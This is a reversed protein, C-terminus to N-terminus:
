HSIRRGWDRRQREKVVLFMSGYQIGIKWQDLHHSEKLLYQKMEKGLRAQHLMYTLEAGYEEELECLLHPPTPTSDTKAGM